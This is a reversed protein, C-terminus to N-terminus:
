KLYIYIAFLFALIAAGAISFKILNSETAALIVLNSINEEINLKCCILSNIAFKLIWGPLWGGDHTILNDIDEKHQLQFQWIQKTKTLIQNEVM